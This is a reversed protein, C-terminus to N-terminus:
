VHLTAPAGIQVVTTVQYTTYGPKGTTLTTVVPSIGTQAVVGELLGLVLCLGGLRAMVAGASVATFFPALVAARAWRCCSYGPRAAVFPDIKGSGFTACIALLVTYPFIYHTM